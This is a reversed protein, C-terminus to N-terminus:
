RASQRGIEHRSRGAACVGLDQLWAPVRTSGGRAGGTRDVHQWRDPRDGESGAPPAWAGSPGDRGCLRCGRGRDGGRRERGAADSEIANVVALTYSRTEPAPRQPAVSIVGVGGRHGVRPRRWAVATSSAGCYRIVNAHLNHTSREQDAFCTENDYPADRMSLEAMEVAATRLEAPADLAYNDVITQAAPRAQTETLAISPGRPTRPDRSGDLRNGPQDGDYRTVVLERQVERISTPTTREELRSPNSPRSASAPTCRPSCHRRRPRKSSSGAARRTPRFPARRRGSSTSRVCNSARPRGIPLTLRSWSVGRAPRPAGRRFSRRASAAGPESARIELEAVPRDAM